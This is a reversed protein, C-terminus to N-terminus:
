KSFAFNVTINTLVEAPVGDVASPKYRWKSVAEVAAKALDPNADPDVVRLTQLTGDRGIVAALVVVGQIRAAKAAPPYIPKVQQVLLSSLANGGMRVRPSETDAVPLATSDAQRIVMTNLPVTQNPEVSVEKIKLGAFDTSLVEVSYQGAEVSSFLFDGTTNTVTMDRNGTAANHVIVTANPVKIGNADYVTGLIQGPVLAVRAPFPLAAVPLLVAIGALATLLLQRATLRRRDQIPNLMAIFRRELNSHRAMPLAPLWVRNRNQAIRAVDLLEAAYDTGETGLNLVADDCASEAEFRLNRCALWVLPNFWHLVRLLEAVVQIMWDHRSVHALEHGLVIRTRARTWKDSATPLLIDPYVIGWTLPMAIESSRLLRVPTKVQLLAAVESLVSKYEADDIPTARRMAIRLRVFGVSIVAGFSMSGILWLFIGIAAPSIPHNRTSAQVTIGAGQSLRSIVQSSGAAISVAPQAITDNWYPLLLSCVPLVTIVLVAAAWVAHRAAASHNRLVLTLFYALLVILVSKLSTDLLLAFLQM